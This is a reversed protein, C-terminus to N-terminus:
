ADASRTGTSGRAGPTGTRPPSAAAASCACIAPPSSPPPASPTTCPICPRASPSAPCSSSLPCGGGDDGDSWYGASFATSTVEEELCKGVFLCVSCSTIQLLSRRRFAVLM